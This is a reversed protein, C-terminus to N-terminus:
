MISLLKALHLQPFVPYLSCQKLFFAVNFISVIMVSTELLYRQQSEDCSTLPFNSNLQINTYHGGGISKASRDALNLAGGLLPMTM